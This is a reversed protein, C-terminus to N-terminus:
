TGGNSYNLILQHVMQLQWRYNYHRRERQERQPFFIRGKICVVPTLYHAHLIAGHRRTYQVVVWIKFSIISDFLDLSGHDSKELSRDSKTDFPPRPDTM